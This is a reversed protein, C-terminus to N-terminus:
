RRQEMRQIYLIWTIELETNHTINLKREKEGKNHAEQSNLEM